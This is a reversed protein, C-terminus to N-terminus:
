SLISMADPYSTSNKISKLVSVLKEVPYPKELIRTPSLQTIKQNIIKDSNGTLIIV